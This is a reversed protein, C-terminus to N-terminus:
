SQLNRRKRLEAYNISTDFESLMVVQCLPTQIICILVSVPFNPETRETEWINRIQMM